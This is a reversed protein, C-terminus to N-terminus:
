SLLFSTMLCPSIRRGAKSKSYTMRSHSRKDWFHHPMPGKSLQKPINWHAYGNQDFLAAGIPIGGESMGLKAEELAVDLMARYDLGEKM